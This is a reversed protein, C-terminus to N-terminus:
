WHDSYQHGCNACQYTSGEFAPCNCKYCKGYGAEAKQSAAVPLALGIMIIASYKLAKRRSIPKALVSNFLKISM